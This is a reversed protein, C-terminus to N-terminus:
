LRGFLQTLLAKERAVTTHGTVLIETHGKRAVLTITLYPGSGTVSSFAEDLFAEDHTKMAGQEAFSKREAAFGAVDQNTQIRIIM